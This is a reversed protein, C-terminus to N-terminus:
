SRPGVLVGVASSWGGVLGAVPAAVAAAAATALAGVRLFSIDWPASPSAPSTM